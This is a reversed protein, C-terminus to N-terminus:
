TMRYHKMRLTEVPLNIPDPAEERVVLSREAIKEARYKSVNTSGMYKHDWRLRVKGKVHDRNRPMDRPASEVLLKLSRLKQLNAELQQQSNM